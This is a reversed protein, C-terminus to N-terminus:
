SQLHEEVLAIIVQDQFEQALTKLKQAFPIYKPDLEELYAAREQIKTMSGLMALEYLVEMEESPPIELRESVREELTIELGESDQAESTKLPEYIWKLQLHKEFLNLLKNEDIPQALFDDCGSILTSKQETDLVSASVAIIPIQAIEPIDRIEQIAEFGSKNYMVLDTLILDPKIQQALQIEQTGDEGCIINFGLPELMNQLLLRNEERDDVVLITRKKGQYGVIKQPAEVVVESIAEEVAFVVEFSFTSGVGATSSVELTSGMLEVLQKTIALGLGTGEARREVEGVQEFPQFIKTMQEPTMGMGTDIIEFKIQAQNGETKVANVRLTVQGRDTFKIANGLLNLLVQRLRKEDAQIGIPLDSALESKFLIDKELSRMKIIGVVSDIFSPFHIRKPYLEMKRAEIKSLDLIDNILTLLHQGSQHIINLGQAQSSRLSSDRKLIQAYGLIGNLPTRLEHSMNSLFESKAQNAIEAKQKAQALEATREEVRQELQHAYNQSQQYLEANEISIAAQSCLLKLVELREPTFAQTILNNELYLIAQLKGQSLIPLCLLSKPQQKLLYTDSAWESQNLIDNIVLPQQQRKVFNILKLPIESSEEISLNQQIISLNSENESSLTAIAEITLQQNRNFILVAKTAGANELIVQMLQTILKDLEIEGSLVQSAKMVSNFDLAESIGTTNSSISGQIKELSAITKFPNLSIKQQELISALLQPYREELDKVKAKAGWQSYCYYAEIMYTQAVKDRGLSLYFKATLENALAEEQIYENEKASLIAQDYLEMAELNQGLVRCKEAEVLQLKQLYNIPAYEAWKKLKKRAINVSKLWGKPESQRPNSVLALRTLAAYFYFLAVDPRATIADLYQEALEPYALAQTYDQFWYCLILKNIYLICITSIDQAQQHLTLRTKEDYIDGNLKCPNQSEERLNSVIQLCLEHQHLPTEQKLQIIAERYTVMEKQLASLEKGACYCCYCYSQLSFAAQELDGTELGIQYTRLLPNLSERLPEKWHRILLNFVLMTLCAFHKANLHALLTLALQGFQYGAKLDGMIGCLSVAYTGYAVASEPANGYKLSLGVYKFVMLPFLKPIAFYAAPCLKVIIRMAALKEPQTMLPLDALDSIEQGRLALKTKVVGLGIHLFNPHKPFQVGLQELIELGFTVAEARQNQAKYAEIKVEYAKIRDLIVRTQQLLVEVREEMQQFNGSLYANEAALNYLALTLDYQNKWCEVSLLDIGRDCYELAATYATAVQAKQAAILNLKALEEQESLQQILTVGQNLQSVIEFIRDEREKEPTNKLLLQGIKLHTQQKKNEPILSYAAQQVRDHLFRYSVTVTQISEELSGQFFKYAESIPLILGEQLAEWINTAVEEQSEKCVIALTELNFRNGICAALKLVQQTKSSLKQLRGAIFEIVNDTLAADRVQVLDCEWYGLYQNFTILEDEHLGKLFQTTFFPNGQTKQYVLESLPQAKEEGCILTEAMLQNIHKFALPELTITNIVAQNERPARRKRVEKLDPSGGLPTRAEKAAQFAAPDCRKRLEDLSLILPHAPFVENDRYAGLILLYGTESDEMLLKLLNLSASDAWQLDDLFIVLPHEKTTFVRVFKGFLLNFRNQAASGFLEPVAPQQGIIYELEPIVEILVQGNEGVAQLIKQKWKELETDLESLLQGMLDRFAQVFASFPINRNFQDYKGKIFYGQQRVIPKHVENVVATKGIGSFGAVLMMESSGEKRLSSQPPIAVREFADLLQQIDTERGYLKEPIIFRDCLDRKGLEFPLINGTTELQQLCQELDVKLGLGSQYREEANKAM